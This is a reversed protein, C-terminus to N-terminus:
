RGASAILQSANPSIYGCALVRQEVVTDAKYGALKFAIPMANQLVGLLDVAADPEKKIEALAEALDGMYAEMDLCSTQVMYQGTKDDKFIKVM